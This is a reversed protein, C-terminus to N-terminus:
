KGRKHSSQEKTQGEGKQKETPAELNQTKNRKRDGLQPTVDERYVRTTKVSNCNDQIKNQCYSFM